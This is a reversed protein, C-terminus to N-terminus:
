QIMLKSSSSNLIQIATIAQVRNKKMQLKATLALHQPRCRCTWNRM